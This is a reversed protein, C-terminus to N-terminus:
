RITNGHCNCKCKTQNFRSGKGVYGKCHQCMKNKCWFTFSNPPILKEEAYNITM